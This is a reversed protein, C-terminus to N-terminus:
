WTKEWAKAQKIQKDLEGVRKYQKKYGALGKEKELKKIAFGLRRKSLGGVKGGAKELDRILKIRRAQSFKGGLTPVGKFYGHKRIETILEDTKRFRGKELFTPKPKIDPKKKLISMHTAISTPRKLVSKQVQEPRSSPRRFLPFPM